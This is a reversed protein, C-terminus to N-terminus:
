KKRRMWWWVAAGIVLLLANEQVFDTLSGGSGFNGTKFENYASVDGSTASSSSSFGPIGGMGAAMGLPSGGGFISSLGFNTARKVAVDKVGDSWDSM